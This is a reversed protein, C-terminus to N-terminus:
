PLAASALAETDVGLQRLVGVGLADPVSLLGVLEHEPGVREHGRRGAEAVAAQLALKAGADFPTPAVALSSEGLNTTLGSRVADLDIGM